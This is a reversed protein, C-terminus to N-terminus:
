GLENSGDGFHAPPITLRPQYPSRFFAPAVGASGLTYTEKSGEVVYELTGPLLVGAHDAYQGPTLTQTRAGSTWTFKEPLWTATSIRVTGMTKRGDLDFAVSVAGDGDPEPQADFHLPSSPSLWQGTACWVTLLARARDGLELVRPLGQFDVEWATTGDFALTRPLRSSVEFAFRGDGDFVLSYEGDEGMLSSTGRVMIGAPQKALAPYHVADRVRALVAATDDPGMALAAAAFLAITM